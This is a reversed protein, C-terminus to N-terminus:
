GYLYKKYKDAHSAAPPNRIIYTSLKHRLDVITSSGCAKCDRFIEDKNKIVLDTEPNKCDACLVFKQIFIDLLGALKEATHAGNVGYRDAKADIFTLAGLEFGFFKAAYSPPRTLATSIASM